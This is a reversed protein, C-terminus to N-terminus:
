FMGNNNSSKSQHPITQLVDWHELILGDEDFKFIDVGATGLDDPDNNYVNIFNVHAWVYDDQAIMRHIKVRMQSFKKVREEFTHGTGEARDPLFPNHQIYDPALYKLASKLPQKENFMEDYLQTLIQINRLSKDNQPDCLTLM